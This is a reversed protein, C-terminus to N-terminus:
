ESAMKQLRSKATRALKSNHGSEIVVRYLARAESLESGKEMTEALLFLNEEVPLLRVSVALTEKAREIKGQQLYLYGLGMLTRYYDPQLRVSKQLHLRASQLDGTRLYAMGLAGLVKPEDPTKVAAQLYTAIAKPNGAKEDRQAQSLLDFGASLSDLKQFSEPLRATSAGVFDLCAGECVQNEFYRALRISGADPDYVSEQGALCESVASVVDRSVSGGYSNQTRHGAYVLLQELEQLSSLQTVLGRTMVLHRGPLVYLASASRDAVYVSLTKGSAARNIDGTLAQDHYPGGQLQLLRMAVKEGLTHKDSATLKPLPAPIYQSVGACGGLIMLLLCFLIFSSKKM